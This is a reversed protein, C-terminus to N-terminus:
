KESFVKGEDERLETTEREFPMEGKTFTAM